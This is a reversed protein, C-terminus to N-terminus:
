CVFVADPLVTQTTIRGNKRQAILVTGSNKPYGIGMQPFMRDVALNREGAVAPVLLCCRDDRCIPINVEPFVTLAALTRKM